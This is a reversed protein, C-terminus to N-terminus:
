KMAHIYKWIKGEPADPDCFAWTIADEILHNDGQMHKKYNASLDHWWMNVAVYADWCTDDEDMKSKFPEIAAKVQDISWHEGELRTGDAAFSYMADVVKNAYHENFHPGHEDEYEAHKFKEYLEPNHEHVYFLLEHLAKM